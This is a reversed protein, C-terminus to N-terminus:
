VVSVSPSTISVADLACLGSGGCNFRVQLANAPPLAFSQKSWQQSVRPVNLNQWSSGANTTYQVTFTAGYGSWYFNVYSDYSTTVPFTSMSAWDNNSSSISAVAYGNGQAPAGFLSTYTTNWPNPANYTTDARGM